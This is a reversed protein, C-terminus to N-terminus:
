IGSKSCADGRTALLMSEKRGSGGSRGARGLRRPQSQGQCRSMPSRHRRFFAILQRPTLPLETTALIQGVEVSELTFTAVGVALLTFQPPRRRRPGVRFSSPEVIDTFMEGM